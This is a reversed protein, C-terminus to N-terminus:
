EYVEINNLYISLARRYDRRRRRSLGATCCSDDFRIERGNDFSVHQLNILCGRASEFFRVPNVKKQYDKIQGKAYIRGNVTDVAVSGNFFEFMIIDAEEIYINGKETEICIKRSAMSLAKLADRMNRFFRQENLPKTMYRFVKIGMAEDLYEDFSSIVMYIAYRNRPKIRKITYLGSLKGMEVDMLIIDFEEDSDILAEGSSFESIDPLELDKNKFYKNVLKKLEIRFQEDDDCIAVRLM